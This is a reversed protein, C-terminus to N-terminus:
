LVMDRTDDYIDNAVVSAKVTATGLATIKAEGIGSLAQNCIDVSTTASM